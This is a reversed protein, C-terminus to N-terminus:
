HRGGAFFQQYKWGSPFGSRSALSLLPKLTENYALALTNSNTIENEKLGLDSLYPDILKRYKKHNQDKIMDKYVSLAKAQIEALHKVYDEHPLSNGKKQNTEPLVPVINWLRNHCVFSWPVFHDLVYEGPALLHNSYICPMKEISLVENWFRTQMNLANRQSPPRIKEIIAPTTPNREQLFNLWHKEAWGQVIAQNKQFYNIWAPHLKIAYDKTGDNLIKYIIRRDEFKDSALKKIAENKVADKLGKLEKVFFPVLLRYPVYRLLEKLEIEDFQIKIAERLAKQNSANGISKGNTSFNLRDLVKGVKDQLGFSLRFYNHPYWALAAMEIAIDDMFIKKNNINDNRLISLIGQFFLLKYSNTTDRFLGALVDVNVENSPTLSTM